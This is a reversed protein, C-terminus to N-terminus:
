GSDFATRPPTNQMSSFAASQQVTFNGVEMTCYKAFDQRTQQQFVGNGRGTDEALKKNRLRM